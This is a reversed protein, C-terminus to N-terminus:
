DRWLPKDLLTTRDAVTLGIDHLAREDFQALQTREAARQRWLQLTTRAHTIAATLSFAQHPLAIAHAM